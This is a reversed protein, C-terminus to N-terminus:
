DLRYKIFSVSEENKKWEAENKSYINIFPNKIIILKEFDFTNYTIVPILYLYYLDGFAKAIDMENKSWYFKYDDSSVAKVEIYRAIRQCNEDLYNEFSKIDYGALVNKISIHQIENEEIKIDSLRIIEHVIVAEEALLGIAENNEQKKKFAEPSLSNKSFQKIFLDFYHPNIIYTTNDLSTTIFDLELLLNRTDSYKIKQLESAKFFTKENETQFNQLFDKLDKSVKSKALFLFSLFEKNFDNPALHSITLSSLSVLENSILKLVKLDELFTLTEDFAIANEQYKRKVNDLDRVSSEALINCLTHIHSLKIKYFARIM